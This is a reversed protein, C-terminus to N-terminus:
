LRFLWYDAKAALIHPLENEVVACAYDRAADPLACEELLVQATERVAKETWVGKLKRGLASMIPVECVNEPTEWYDPPYREWPITFVELIQTELWLCRVYFYAWDIGRLPEPVPVALPYSLFRPVRHAFHLHDYHAFYYHLEAFSEWLWQSNTNEAAEVLQLLRKTDELRQALVEEGLELAEELRGGSGSVAATYQISELLEEAVEVPVSTNEGMHYHQHYSKVKGALVAYLVEPADQRYPQLRSM